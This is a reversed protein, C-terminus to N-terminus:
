QNGGRTLAAPVDMRQRLTALARMAQTRVTSPSCELIEAIGADDLDEYYRLVLTARQKPPLTAVLRWAADREAAAAGIDTRDARDAVDGTALERSPRRRLRSINANVLMRRVYADPDGGKVIRNWRVFARGLVEQVLDEALHRDYSLLRALGVLRAGRLRVYEEFTIM